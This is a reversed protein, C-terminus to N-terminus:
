SLHFGSALPVAVSFRDFLPPLFTDRYPRILFFPSGPDPLCTRILTHIKHPVVDTAAVM